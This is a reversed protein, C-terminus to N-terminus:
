MHQLHGKRRREEQKSNITFNSQKLKLKKSLFNRNSAKKLVNDILSNNNELKQM